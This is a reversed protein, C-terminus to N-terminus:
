LVNIEFFYPQQSYFQDYFERENQSAHLGREYMLRLLYYEVHWNMAQASMGINPNVYVRVTLVGNEAAYSYSTTITKTKDSEFIIDRPQPNDTYVVKLESIKSQKTDWKDYNWFGYADLTEELKSLNVVALSYKHTESATTIRRHFDPSSSLVPQSSVNPNSGSKRYRYLILLVINVVVVAFLLVCIM